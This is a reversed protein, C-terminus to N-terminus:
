YSNSRKFTEIIREPTKPGRVYLTFSEKYMECLIYDMTDSYHGYKQYSVGTKPDRIMSKKKTGDSDEKLHNLDKISEVCNNLLNIELGDFNKSFVANLFNGRMVVSPNKTPLRIAPKFQELHKQALKFFDYGKELKVDQKKSTRDGYIFLGGVHHRYRKTFERCTEELTNRPHLLGIEDIQTAKKGEVQWISLAMYPNVNEDFSIHLAKDPNYEYSDSPIVHVLQNFSKYFEGGTQPVARWDGHLLRAKDYPDDMDELTETDAKVFAADPNSALTAQIFKNKRQQLGTDLWPLVIDDKIWSDGPNCTILQKKSLGYEVHKYRTRTLLIEAARKHINIGEEIAGDTYETSGLDHFDPDSPKYKVELLVIVSGNPFTIISKNDNYDYAIGMARAVDFFTVLVSGKLDKLVDRAIYGRTGPYTMRQHIQWVCILFSKGGGAMGGYIVRSTLTNDM